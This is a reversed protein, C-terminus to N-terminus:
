LKYYYKKLLFVAIENVNFMIITKQISISTDRIPQEPYKICIKLMFICNTIINIISINSINKEMSNM